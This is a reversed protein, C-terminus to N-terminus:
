REDKIEEGAGPLPMDPLTEEEKVELSRTAARHGTRTQGLLALLGTMCGTTVAELGGAAKGGFSLAVSSTLAILGMIGVFWIVLRVPVSDHGNM